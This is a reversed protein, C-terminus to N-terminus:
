SDTTGSSRSMGSPYTSNGLHAFGDTVLFAFEGLQLLRLLNEFRSLGRKVVPARM